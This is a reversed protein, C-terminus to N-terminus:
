SLKQSERCRCLNSKFNVRVVDADLDSPSSLPNRQREVKRKGNTDFHDVARRIIEPDSWESDKLHEIFHYDTTLWEEAGRILM